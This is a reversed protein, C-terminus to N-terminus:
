SPRYSPSEMRGQDVEFGRCKMGSRSKCDFSGRILFSVPSSGVRNIKDEVRFGTDGREPRSSRFFFRGDASMAGPIGAGGADEEKDRM